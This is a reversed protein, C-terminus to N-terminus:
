ADNRKLLTQYPNAQLIWGVQDGGFIEFKEGVAPKQPLIIVAQKVYSVDDDEISQGIMKLGM